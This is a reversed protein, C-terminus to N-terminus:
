GWTSNSTTTDVVTGTADTYTGTELIEVIYPYMYYLSIANLVLALSCTVMGIISSRVFAKAFEAYPGQEAVLKTLKRYGIFACILGAAGLIIGGLILSIPGAINAFMVLRQSTKLDKSSALAQKLSEATPSVSSTDDKESTNESSEPNKNEPDIM